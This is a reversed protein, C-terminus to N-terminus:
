STPITASWSFAVPSTNNAAGDATTIELSGSDVSNTAQSGESLNVRGTAITISGGGSTAITTGETNNVPRLYQVVDSAGISVGGFGAAAILSRLSEHSISMRPEGGIRSLSDLFTKGDSPNDRMAHSLDLSFSTTGWRTTGNIQLPGLAHKAPESALTPLTQSAVPDALASALGNASLPRVLINAMLIGDVISYDQIMARCKAGAALSIRDGTSAAEGDSYPVQYWDLTTVELMKEGVLEQAARAYTQFVFAPAVSDRLRHLPFEFGSHFVGRDSINPSVQVSTLALIASNIRLKDLKSYNPTTM